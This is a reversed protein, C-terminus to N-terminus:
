LVKRIIAILSIAYLAKPDTDCNQGTEVTEGDGNECLQSIVRAPRHPRRAHELLAANPLDVILPEVVVVADSLLQKPFARVHERRRGVRGAGTRQGKAMEVQALRRGRCWNCWAAAGLQRSRRRTAAGLGLLERTATPVAAGRGHAERAAAAAAPAAAGLGLAERAAAAQYVPQLPLPTPASSACGTVVQDM